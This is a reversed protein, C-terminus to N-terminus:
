EPPRFHTALPAPRVPASGTSRLRQQNPTIGTSRDPGASRCKRSARRQMRYTEPNDSKLKGSPAGIISIAPIPEALSDNCHEPRGVLLFLLLLLNAADVEGNYPMQDGKRQASLSALPAIPICFTRARAKTSLAKSDNRPRSARGNTNLNLRKFRFGAKDVAFAIGGSSLYIQLSRLM